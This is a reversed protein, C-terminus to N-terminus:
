VASRENQVCFLFPGARSGRKRNFDRLYLEAFETDVAAIQKAAEAIARRAKRLCKNVRAKTKKMEM